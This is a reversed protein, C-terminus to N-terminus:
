GSAQSGKLIDVYRDLLKVETDRTANDAQMLVKMFAIVNGKEEVSLIESLTIAFDDQLENDSVVKRASGLLEECEKLTVSFHNMLQHKIYLIEEDNIENDVIALDMLIVALAIQENEKHGGPFLDSALSIM